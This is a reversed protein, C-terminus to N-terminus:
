VNSKEKRLEAFNNKKLRKYINSFYYRTFGKYDIGTEEIFPQITSNEILEITEDLSNTFKKHEYVDEILGEDNILILGSGNFIYSFNLFFKDGKEYRQEPIRVVYKKFLYKDLVGIQVLKKDEGVNNIQEFGNKNKDKNLIDINQHIKSYKIMFDIIKDIPYVYNRDSIKYFPIIKKNRLYALNQLSIDLLLVVENSTLYNNIAIDKGFFIINVKKKLFYFFLKNFFYKKDNNCIKNGFEYRIIQLFMSHDFDNEFNLEIEGNNENIELCDDNIKVFLKKM